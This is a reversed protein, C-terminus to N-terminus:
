FVQCCTFVLAPFLAALVGGDSPFVPNTVHIQGKKAGSYFTFRLQDYGGEIAQWRKFKARLTLKVRIM